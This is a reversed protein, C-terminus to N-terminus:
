GAWRGWQRSKGTTNLYFISCLHHGRSRPRSGATVTPTTPAGDLPMSSTNLLFVRGNAWILTIHL